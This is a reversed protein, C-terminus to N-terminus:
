EEDPGDELEFHYEDEIFMLKSLASAGPTSAIIDLKALELAGVIATVPVDSEVWLKWSNEGSTDIYTLVTVIGTPIAGEPLLSDVFDKDAQNFEM